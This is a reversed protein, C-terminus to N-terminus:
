GDRSTSESDKRETIRLPFAASTCGDFAGLVLERLEHDSDEQDLRKWFLIVWRKSPLTKYGKESKQQLWLIPHIRTVVCSYEWDMGKRVIRTAYAVYWIRMLAM